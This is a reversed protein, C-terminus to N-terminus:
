RTIALCTVVAGDQGEFRAAQAEIRDLQAMASTCAYGYKAAVRNSAREMAVRSRALFDPLPYSTGPEFLESVVSSPSYCREEAGDPWRVTWYTEPM